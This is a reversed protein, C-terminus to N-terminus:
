RVLRVAAPALRRVIGGAGGRGSVFIDLKDHGIAISLTAIRGGPGQQFAAVDGLDLRTWGARKAGNVIARRLEKSSRWREIQFTGVGNRGTYVCLDYPRGREVGSSGKFGGLPSSGLVDDARSASMVKCARNVEPNTCQDTNTQAFVTIQGSLGTNAVLGNTFTM